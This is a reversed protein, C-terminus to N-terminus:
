EHARRLAREVDLYGNAIAEDLIPEGKATQARPDAGAALLAKVSAIRGVRSAEALATTGNRGRVDVPVDAELFADLWDFEGRRAFQGLADGVTLQNRCTAGPNAGARLLYLAARWQFGGLAALLPSGCDTGGVPLGTELLVELVAVHGERAALMLPRYYNRDWAELLVGGEILERVRVADGSASAVPLERFPAAYATREEIRAIGDLIGKIRGPYRPSSGSMHGLQLARRYIEHIVPVYHVLEKQEAAAFHRLWMEADLIHRRLETEPWPRRSGPNAGEYDPGADLYSYWDIPVILPVRQLFEDSLDVRTTRYRPHLVDLYCRNTTPFQLSWLISYRGNEAIRTTEEDTKIDGHLGPGRCRMWVVANRTDESRSFEVRGHVPGQLVSGCCAALAAPLLIFARLRSWVSCSAMLLEWPYLFPVM